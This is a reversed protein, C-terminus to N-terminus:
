IEEKSTLRLYFLGFMFLIVFLINAVAAGYSFNNQGFSYRYSLTSLLETSYAPGGGTMAYVLDFVKFTYIFGLTLVALIASKLLPLTIYTFEQFKSTGDINAAEYVDKPMNTLATALLLMNFPIGKWINTIIVVMMATNPYALWEIPEKIFGISILLHNIIGYSGAFMWKFIAAVAVMPIMWAVLNLGRLFEALKFNNAFFLALGFGIVFQFIISGITFILTNTLAKTVLGDQFIDVYNKFGVFEKQPNIFTFLDVKQFSIIINYIIPYGVLAVMFILAPLVFLYGATNNDYNKNKIKLKTSRIIKFNGIM